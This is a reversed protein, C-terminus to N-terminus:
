VVALGRSLPGSRVFHQRAHSASGIVSDSDPTYLATFGDIARQNYALASEYLGTALYLESALKLTDVSDFDAKRGPKEYVALMEDLLPKAPAFDGQYIKTRVLWRQDALAEKSERGKSARWGALSFNYLREAEKFIM